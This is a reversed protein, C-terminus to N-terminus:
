WAPAQAPRLRVVHQQDRKVAPSQCLLLALHAIREAGCLACERLSCRRDASPASAAAAACSSPEGSEVMATMGLLHLAVDFGVIRQALVDIQQRLIRRQREM